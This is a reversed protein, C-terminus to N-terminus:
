DVRTNRAEHSNRMRLIQFQSLVAPRNFHPPAGQRRIVSPALPAHSAVAFSMRLLLRGRRTRAYCVLVRYDDTEIGSLIPDNRAAFYVRRARLSPELKHAVANTKERWGRDGFTSMMEALFVSTMVTALNIGPCQHQGMGGPFFTDNAVNNAGAEATGAIFREPKFEEPDPFIAEDRFPIRPDATLVYGAPIDYGDFSRESPNVRLGGATQPMVRLSEKTVANTFTLAMIDDLTAIRRCGDMPSCVADSFEHAVARRTDAHEGLLTFAHGMLAAAEIYAGWVMLVCTTAIREDSFTEGNEDKATSYQKYFFYKPDDLENATVVSRFHNECYKVLEDLATRGSKFEPSWKGLSLLGANYAVMARKYREDPVHGLFLEFLLDLAFDVCEVGPRFSVVKEGNEESKSRSRGSLDEVFARTREGITEAYTELAFRGLVRKFNARTAQHRKGSMRLAGYETHLERFTEPLAEDAPLEAEFTLFERVADKSGFVVAPKFFMATKFTPGYREVRRRVFGNPDTVYELTERCGFLGVRGPPLKLGREGRIMAGLFQGVDGDHRNSDGDVDDDFSASARARASSRAGRELDGRVRRANPASAGGTARATTAM